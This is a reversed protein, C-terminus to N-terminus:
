APRARMPTILRSILRAIRGVLSRACHPTGSRQLAGSALSADQVRGEMGFSMFPMVNALIILILGTVALALAGDYSSRAKLLAGCRRCRAVSRPPLADLRHRLGCDPCERLSPKDISPADVISVDGRGLTAVRRAGPM